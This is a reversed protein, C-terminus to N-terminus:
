LDVLTMGLEHYRSGQAKNEDSLRNLLHIEQASLVVEIAATNEELYKLRKTGPIPVIKDSFAMIWSLALQASTCRKESALQNITAVLKYNESFNEAKFRPMGRRFDDNALNDLSTIQGTLFGRGLPSYAVFTIGLKECLPILSEEPGRSWLSYETQLASIPHVKHAKLITEPNAESLGIYKVKGVRVLEAMAGVTDEIPVGKDIRHLYYLDICDIELRSLSADCAERVYEPTGCITRTKPDNPDRKIGFKTAIVARGRKGILAKKLLAENAGSGYQDATDLFNIGLELARHLTRISDGEDTPGYFESMGMCGLGISSIELDSKGLKKFQM